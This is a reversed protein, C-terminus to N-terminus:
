KSENNDNVGVVTVTYLEVFHTRVIRLCQEATKTFLFLDNKM